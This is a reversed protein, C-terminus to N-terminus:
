EQPQCIQGVLLLSTELTICEPVSPKKPRCSFFASWPFFALFQCVWLPIQVLASASLHSLLWPRYSAGRFTEDLLCRHVKHARTRQAVQVMIVIKLYDIEASSRTIRQEFVIVANSSSIIKSSLCSTSWMKFNQLDLKMKARLIVNLLSKTSRVNQKDDCQCQSIRWCHDSENDIQFLRSKPPCKNTILCSWKGSHM